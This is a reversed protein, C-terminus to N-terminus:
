NTHSNSNEYTELLIKLSLKTSIPVKLIGLKKFLAETLSVEHCINEETPILCSSFSLFSLVAGITINSILQKKM